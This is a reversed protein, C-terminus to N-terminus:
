NSTKTEIYEYTSNAKDEIYYRIDGDYDEELEQATMVGTLASSVLMLGGCGQLSFGFLLVIFFHSVHKKM